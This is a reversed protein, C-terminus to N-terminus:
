KSKLQEILADVTKPSEDVPSIVPKDIKIKILKSERGIYFHM